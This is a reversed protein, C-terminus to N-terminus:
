SRDKTIQQDLLYKKTEMLKKDFIDDVINLLQFRQTTTKATTKFILKM